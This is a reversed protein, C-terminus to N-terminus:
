LGTGYRTALAGKGDDKRLVELVHAAAIKSEGPLWGFNRGTLTGTVLSEFSPFEGDYHFVAPVERPLDLDVMPPTNRATLMQGDARAPIPSRRTFDCYTRGSYSYQRILDDGLHCQRCSM